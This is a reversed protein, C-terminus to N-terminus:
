KDIKCYTATARGWTGLCTDRWTKAYIRSMSYADTGQSQRIVM